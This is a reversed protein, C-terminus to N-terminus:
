IKLGANKFKEYLDQLDVHETFLEHEKLNKLSALLELNSNSPNESALNLINTMITLKEQFKLVMPHDEGVPKTYEEDDKLFQKLGKPTGIVWRESNQGSMHNLTIHQVFNDKQFFIENLVSDRDSPAIFLAHKSDLPVYIANGNDFLNFGKITSNRIEVPNDSTIFEQEGILEIVVLGDLSRFKIFENLLALQTEFYNIRQTERIEATIQKFTKGKISIERGLFNISEADLNNKSVDFLRSVFESFMNLVKPTRFYMSLTTLLINEREQPSIFQRKEEVLIKYVSPYKYEINESFYEELKYQDEEPLNKLTYLDTEVCINSIAMNRIYKGTTKDFVDVFYVDGDKTHAFRKLYTQPIFHQRTKKM